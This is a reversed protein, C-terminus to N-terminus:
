PIAASRIDFSGACSPGPNATISVLLAVSAEGLAFRLLQSITWIGLM